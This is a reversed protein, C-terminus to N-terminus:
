CTCTECGLDCELRAAMETLGLDLSAAAPLLDPPPERAVLDRDRAADEDDEQEDDREGARRERLLPQAV